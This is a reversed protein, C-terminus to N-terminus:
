SKPAISLAAYIEANGVLSAIEVVRDATAESLAATVLHSGIRSDAYHAGATVGATESLAKLTREIAADRNVISPLVEAFLLHQVPIRRAGDGGFGSQWEYAANRLGRTHPRVETPWRGIDRAKMFHPGSPIDAAAIEYAALYFTAAPKIRRFRSITIMGPVGRLIEPVHETEYVENLLADREPGITMAATFFIQGLM